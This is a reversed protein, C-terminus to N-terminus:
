RTNQRYQINSGKSQREFEHKETELLTHKITVGHAVAQRMRKVNSLSPM